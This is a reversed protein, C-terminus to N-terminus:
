REAIGATTVTVARGDSWAVEIAGGRPVALSSGNVARLLIRKTRPVCLEAELTSAFGRPLPGAPAPPPPAPSVRVRWASANAYHNEVVLAALAASFGAAEADSGAAGVALLLLSRSPPPDAPFSANPGQYLYTVLRAADTGPPGDFRLAARPRFGRLGDAFPVRAAVIGGRSRVAVTDGLALPVDPAGPAAAAAALRVGNVYLGDIGGGCPLLTADGTFEIPVPEPLPDGMGVIHLLTPRPAGPLTAKAFFGLAALKPLFPANCWRALDERRLVLQSFSSFPLPASPDERARKMPSLFTPSLSFRTSRKAEYFIFFFCLHKKEKESRV